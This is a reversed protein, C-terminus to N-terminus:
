KDEKEKRKLIEGIRWSCQSTEKLKYQKIRVKQM